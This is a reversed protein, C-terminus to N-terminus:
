AEEIINYEKFFSVYVTVNQLGSLNSLVQGDQMIFVNPTPMTKNTIFKEDDYGMVELQEFVDTRDDQTLYNLTLYYIPIDYAKAINSLIPRASKCYECTSTGMVIVVPDESKRLEEYKDYEIFTLNEEPVYTASEDLVGAKILFQVMKYGDVYGKQVALVKGKQVIVTTPTAQDIDLTELIENRESVSLLTYDIDLYELNYDSAIQELIPTQLECYECVSSRYYIISIDEHEMYEYFDSMLAKATSRSQKLTYAYYGLLAVLIIILTIVLGIILSKNRHTINEQIKKM